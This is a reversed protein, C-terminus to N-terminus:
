RACVEAILAVAADLSPLLTVRPPCKRLQGATTGGAWIALRRPTRESLQMLCEGAQRASTYASFSLALIDSNRRTVCDIIEPLPTDVGLSYCRTGHAALITEIMLLGLGHREGPPTTLVIRPTEHSPSLERIMGRLVGIIQQTLQHEEFVRIEGDEWGLGIKRCLPAVVNCVDDVASEARVNAKLWRQFEGINTASFLRPDFGRAQLRDAGTPQAALRRAERQLHSLPQGVIQGPRLGADVLQKLLRLTDVDSQQYIRDGSADRAPRPFGYRREWVRITEKALGTDREVASIGLLPPLSLRDM